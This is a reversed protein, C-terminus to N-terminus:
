SIRGNEKIAVAKFSVQKIYKNILYRYTDSNEGEVELAM